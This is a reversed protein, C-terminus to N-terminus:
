PAENVVIALAPMVVTPLNGLDPYNGAVTGSAPLMYAHAATPNDAGYTNTVSGNAAFAPCISPQCLVAGPPLEVSAQAALTVATAPATTVGDTGLAGVAGAPSAPNASTDPAAAPDGATVVTGPPPGISMDPPSPIEVPVTGGAASQVALNTSPASAATTAMIGAAPAAGGGGCASLLVAFAVVAARRSSDIVANLTDM